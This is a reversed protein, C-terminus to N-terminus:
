LIGVHVCCHLRNRPLWKSLFHAAKHPIATWLMCVHLWSKLPPLSFFPLVSYSCSSVLEITVLYMCVYLYICTYIYTSVLSLLTLQEEALTSSPCAWFVTRTPYHLHSPSTAMAILHPLLCFTLDSLCQISFLISNATLVPPSRTSVKRLSCNCLSMLITHRSGAIYM